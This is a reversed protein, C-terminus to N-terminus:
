VIQSKYGKELLQSSQFSFYSIQNSLKTAIIGYYWIFGNYVNPNNTKM